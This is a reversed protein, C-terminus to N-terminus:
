EHTSVKGMGGKRPQESPYSLSGTKGNRVKPGQVGAMGNGNPQQGPVSVSGTKGNRVLPGTTEGTSSKPQGPEKLQALKVGTHPRLGRMEMINFSPM